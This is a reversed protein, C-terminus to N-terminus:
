VKFRLKFATADEIRKFNIVYQATYLNNSVIEIEWERWFGQDKSVNEICWVRYEILDLWSSNPNITVTYNM